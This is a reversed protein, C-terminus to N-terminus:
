IEISLSRLQSVDSTVCISAPKICSVKLLLNYLFRSQFVTTVCVNVSSCVCLGVYSCVYVCLSLFVRVYVYVVYRLGM